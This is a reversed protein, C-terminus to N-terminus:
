QNQNLCQPVPINQISTNEFADQEIYQFNSAPEIEVQQLKKCSSFACKGIYTVKSPTSFSFSEIREIFSPIEVKKIDRRVFYVADWIENEDNNKKGIIM